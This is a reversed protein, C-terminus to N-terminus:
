GRALRGRGVWDGFLGSAVAERVAPVIKLWAKYPMDRRMYNCRICAPVVNEKIHGVDNDIRDLTMRLRHEGCYDCGHAIMAAIEGKTLSFVRGYRRDTRQSDEFIWRATDIGERRMKSVRADRRSMRAATTEPSRKDRAVRAQNECKVCRSRLGEGGARTYFKVLKPSKGCVSCRKM